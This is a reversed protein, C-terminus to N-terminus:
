RSPLDRESLLDNFREALEDRRRPPLKDIVALLQRALDLAEGWNDAGGLEALVREAKPELAPLAAKWADEHEPLIISRKGVKTIILRGREREKYATSRGLTYKSCFQNVTLPQSKSSTNDVTRVERVASL